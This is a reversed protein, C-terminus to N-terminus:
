RRGGAGTWVTSWGLRPAAWGCRTFGGAPQTAGADAGPHRLAIAGDDVHLQALLYISLDLVEDLGDVATTALVRTGAPGDSCTATFTTTLYQSIIPGETEGAMIGGHDPLTQM